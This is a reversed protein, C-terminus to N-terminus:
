TIILCIALVFGILLIVLICKIFTDNYCFDKCLTSDNKEMTDLKDDTVLTTNM